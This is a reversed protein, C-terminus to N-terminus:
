GMDLTHLASPVCGLLIWCVCARVHVYTAKMKQRLTCRGDKRGTVYPDPERGRSGNVFLLLPFLSPLSLPPSFLSSHISPPLSILPSISLPLSFPLSPSPFCGKFVFSSVCMICARGGERGRERDRERERERERDGDGECVSKSGWVCMNKGERWRGGHRRM